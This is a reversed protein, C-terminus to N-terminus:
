FSINLGVGWQEGKNFLPAGSGKQIQFDMYNDASLYMRLAGAVRYYTAANLFDYWVDGTGALGLRLNQISILAKTDVSASGKVRFIGSNLAEQSQDAIDISDTKFKYGAQLFVGFKTHKLWTDTASAGYWPVYGAEFLANVFNFRSSSEIGLSFPFTHVTKTVDPSVIKGVNHTKFLVELGTIKATISSFADASGSMIQVEPNVTLISHKGFKLKEKGTFSLNPIYSLGLSLASNGQDTRVASLNVSLPKQAFGALVLLLCVLTASLGKVTMALWNSDWSKVEDGNNHIAWEVNSKYVGASNSTGYGDTQSLIDSHITDETPEIGVKNLVGDVRLQDLMVNQLEQQTM